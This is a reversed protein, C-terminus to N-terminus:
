NRADFKGLCCIKKPKSNIYITILLENFKDNVIKNKDPLRKWGKKRSAYIIFNKERGKKVGSIRTHCSGPKRCWRHDITKSRKGKTSGHRSTKTDNDFHGTWSLRFWLANRVMIAKRVPYAKRIGRQPYNRPMRQGGKARSQQYPNKSLLKKWKQEFNDNKLGWHNGKNWEQQSIIVDRHAHGSWTEERWSRM